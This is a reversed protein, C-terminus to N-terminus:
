RRRMLQNMENRAHNLAPLSKYLNVPVQLSHALPLLLRGVRLSEVSFESPRMGMALMTRALKEYIRGAGDGLEALDALLIFGSSAEVCWIMEPNYPRHGRQGVIISTWNMDVDWMINPAIPLARLSQIVDEPIAPIEPESSALTFDPPSQWSEKWAADPESVFERTFLKGEQQQVRFEVNDQLHRGVITAQQFATTLTAAEAATLYWPVYGARHSRFNPWANAGRFKLGLQKIIDRDADHLNDRSGFTGTLCIQHRLAYEKDDETAQAVAFYSALGRLGPYVALGFMLGANGFVACYSPEAAVSDRIVFLDSDALWEWCALQQYELAATYLARWQELSPVPEVLDGTIITNKAMRSAYASEDPSTWWTASSGCSVCAISLGTPNGYCRRVMVVALLYLARLSTAVRSRTCETVVVVSAPDPCGVVHQEQASM